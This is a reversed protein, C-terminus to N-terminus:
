YHAYDSTFPFCFMHRSHEGEGEGCRLCQAHLHQKSCGRKPKNCGQKPLPPHSITSGASSCSSKQTQACLSPQFPEPNYSHAVRPARRAKFINAFYETTLFFYLCFAGRAAGHACFQLPKTPTNQCSSHHSCLSQPIQGAPGPLPSAAGEGRGKEPTPLALHLVTSDYFTGLQFSGVFMMLTKVGPGM